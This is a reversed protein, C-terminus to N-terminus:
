AQCEAPSREVFAEVELALQDVEDAVRLQAALTLPLLQRVAEPLSDVFVRLRSSGSRATEVGRVATRRYMQLGGPQTILWGRVAALTSRVNTLANFGREMDAMAAAVEVSLGAVRAWEEAIRADAPFNIVTM